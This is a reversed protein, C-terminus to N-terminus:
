FISSLQKQGYEMAEAVSMDGNLFATVFNKWETEFNGVASETGLMFRYALVDHEPKYLFADHNIDARPMTRWIESDRLSKLVPVCNGTKMFVEQGEESIMYFLLQAAAEKVKSARNMVYGSSGTGVMPIPLEPFSVVDWDNGFKNEMDMTAPRSNVVMAVRGSFIDGVDVKVNNVFAGMDILDKLNQLIKRNTENNFDISM